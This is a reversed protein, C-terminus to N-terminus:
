ALDGSAQVQGRRVRAAAGRRHVSLHRPKTLSISSTNSALIAGPKLAKDLSEFIRVKLELNETAAEVVFDCSALDDIQTTGALRAVAQERQEAGLKGKQVLKELDKAIAALGADLAAASADLVRVSCCAQAAVQAIGRGMQGAGVVGVIEIQPM